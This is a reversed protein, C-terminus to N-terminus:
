LHTVKWVLAVFACATFFLSFPTAWSAPVGRAMFIASVLLLYDVTSM